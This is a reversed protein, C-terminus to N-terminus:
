IICEFALIKYKKTEPFNQFSLTGAQRRVACVLESAWVEYSFQPLFFNSLDFKSLDKHLSYCM